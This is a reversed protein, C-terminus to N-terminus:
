FTEIVSELSGIFTEYSVFTGEPTHIKVDNDRLTIGTLPYREFGVKITPMERNTKKAVDELRKMVKEPDRPDNAVPLLVYPMDKMLENALGLSIIGEKSMKKISDSRYLNWGKEHFRELIEKAAENSYGTMQVM